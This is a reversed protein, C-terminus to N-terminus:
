SQRNKLYSINLSLSPKGPPEAPLSDAERTAWLTFCRGAICSVQTWDRPWSSGRSFSIAVWELVRAQFIRHVSFGPCSQAVGHSWKWHLLGWNSEQTPFIGQLYPYAVWELIRPSGQHSVCYLIHRCHLLGPSSGQTPFIGQLFSHSGVEMNKIPFELTLPVQHAVTRPTAFLQVCSFSKWKVWKKHYQLHKKRCLFYILVKQCNVFRPM